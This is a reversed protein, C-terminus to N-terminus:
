NKLTAYQLEQDFSESNNNAQNVSIFYQLLEIDVLSKGLTEGYRVQMPNDQDGLHSTILSAGTFDNDTTYAHTTIVTNLGAYRAADNGNSTDEIAICHDATLGMGALTCQYVVPCPKKDSVIDSTVIATFLTKPDVGLTHEILSHFNATSSSTAIGLMVGKDQAENILRKIGPRLQIAGTHLLTRYHESKCQHLDNIFRTINDIRSRLEPDHELCIRFREKGGSISLIDHYDQESWYWDLDFDRFAKNFAQRHFEETDAITGDVDFIIGKLKM